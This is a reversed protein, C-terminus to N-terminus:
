NVHMRRYLDPFASLWRPLGSVPDGVQQFAMIKGIFFALRTRVTDKGTGVDAYRMMQDLSTDQSVDGALAVSELQRRFVLSSKKPNKDNRNKDNRFYCSIQALTNADRNIPTPLFNDGLPRYPLWDVLGEPVPQLTPYGNAATWLIASIMWLCESIEVRSGAESPNVQLSDGSDLALLGGSDYFDLGCAPRLFNKIDPLTWLSQDAVHSAIGRLVLRKEEVFQVDRNKGVASSWLDDVM